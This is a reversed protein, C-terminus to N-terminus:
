GGQVPPMIAIKDGARLPHRSDVFEVGLGFLVSGEFDRLAPHNECLESFLDGVTANEPLDLEVTSRAVIERLRSFLEARVKM